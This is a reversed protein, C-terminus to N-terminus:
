VRKRAKATKAATLRPLRGKAERRTAGAQLARIFVILREVGADDLVDVKRRLATGPKSLVVTRVLGNADAFRRVDARWCQLYRALDSLRHFGEPPETPAPPLKERRNYASLFYSPSGVGGLNAGLPPSKVSLRQASFGPCPQPCDCHGCNEATRRPPLM